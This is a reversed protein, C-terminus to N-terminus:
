IDDRFALVRFVLGLGAITVGEISGVVAKYRDSFSSSGGTNILLYHSNQDNKLWNLFLSILM